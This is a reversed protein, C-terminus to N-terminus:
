QDGFVAAGDPVLLFSIATFLEISRDGPRRLAM